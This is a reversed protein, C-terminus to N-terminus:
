GPTGGLWGRSSSPSSPASRCRSRWGLTSVSPTGARPATCPSHESSLADSALLPRMYQGEHKRTTHLQRNLLLLLAQIQEPLHEWLFFVRNDRKRPAVLAVVFVRLVRRADVDHGRERQEHALREFSDPVAIVRRRVKPDRQSAVHVVRLHTSGAAQTSHRTGHTSLDRPTTCANKWRKSLCISVECSSFLSMADSLKEDSSIPSRRNNYWVCTPFTRQPPSVSRTAERHIRPASM